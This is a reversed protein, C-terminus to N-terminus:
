EGIAEPKNEQLFAIFRAAESDETGYQNELWKLFMTFQKKQKANDFDLRYALRKKNSPGTDTEDFKLAEDDGEAEERLAIEKAATHFAEIEEPKLIGQLTDEDFLDLESIAQADFTSRDSAANDFLALRKKEFESLGTRKVAVLTNGDTEVILVRHIEANSAAEHTGSGAMIYNDEDVVVSRAAGVENLADTIMGINEPNHLRANDPDPTIDALTAVQFRYGAVEQVEGAPPLYSVAEPKKRTSERKPKQPVEPETPLPTFAFALANEDDDPLDSFDATRELPPLDGVPPEEEEEQIPPLDGGLLNAAAEIKKKDAAEEDFTKMRPGDGRPRDVGGFGNNGREHSHYAM